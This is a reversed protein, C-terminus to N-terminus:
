PVPEARGARARPTPSRAHGRPDAAWLRAALVVAGWAPVAEEQLLPSSPTASCVGGNVVSERQPSALCPARSPPSATPLERPSIGSALRRAATGNCSTSRPPCQRRLCKRARRGATGTCSSGPASPISSRPLSIAPPISDPDCGGAGLGASGCGRWTWFGSLDASPASGQLSRRQKPTARQGLTVGRQTEASAVRHAAHSNHTPRLHGSPAGSATEGNSNRSVPSPSSRRSAGFFFSFV